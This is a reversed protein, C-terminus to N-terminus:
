QSMSPRQGLVVVLDMQGGDRLITLTADEGPEHQGLLARLDDLSGVDKGNLATIVDGGLLTQEGNVTVVQDGGRLGAEDAPSGPEVQEVLVGQQQTSLEMAEALDANLDRAMIGLWARGTRSSEEPEVPEQVSNQAPRAGLTVDLSM